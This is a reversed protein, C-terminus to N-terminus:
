NERRHAFEGINVTFKFGSVNKTDPNQTNESLIYPVKAWM